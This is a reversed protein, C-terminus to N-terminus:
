FPMQVNLDNVDIEPLNDKKSGKKAPKSDTGEETQDETKSQNSSQSQSSNSSSENDGSGLNQMEAKTTLIELERVNIDTAYGKTGDPKDWSRNKISGLVCVKVGKKVYMEIIEALREWASCNMFTVMEQGNSDKGESIAISFSAVKKGTQTVRIEPDKTLRGILFVKNM